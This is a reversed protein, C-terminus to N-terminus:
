RVPSCSPIWLDTNADTTLFALPIPGPARLSRFLRLPGSHALMRLNYGLDLMQLAQLRGLGAPIVSIRNASLNLTTRHRFNWLWDPLDSLANDYVSLLHTDTFQQLDDPWQTLNCGDLNLQAHVRRPHSELAELLALGRLDATKQHLM